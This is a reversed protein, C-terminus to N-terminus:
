NVFYGQAEVKIFITTGAIWAPMWNGLYCALSVGGIKQIDASGALMVRYNQIASVKLRNKPNLKNNIGSKCPRSDMCGALSMLMLAMVVVSLVKKRTNALFNM